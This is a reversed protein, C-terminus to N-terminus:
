ELKKHFYLQYDPLLDPHTIKVLDNLILDPRLYGLELFENGGKAGLRANYTYVTKDEFPKFLSYRNEAAKLENLSNFSGVGIWYDAEKAKQFVSEFSLELFGNSTDDSWLYNAGADALLQAAYNKGGPMFWADGYVIGSLVTPRNGVNTAMSKTKLYENEISKFVSDAEKEKNFFLATFKIWEARGLPTKELYEANIVVPINLDQIKKLQGLDASMTYGMVLNPKLTFLLELNMGKDIGLEKVDGADIRKRLTTSSVYDTSPFGVLSEPVGLYDLHPLHTTSTCVIREIPVEVVQVDAAHAPPTTGKQVLLYQYGNAAGQYPYNVTVWTAEGDHRISFGQAYRLSDYDTRSEVERASRNCSVLILAAVVVMVYKEM